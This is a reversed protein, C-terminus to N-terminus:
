SPLHNVYKENEQQAPRYLDRPFCSEHLSYQSPLAQGLQQQVPWNEGRKERRSGCQHIRM